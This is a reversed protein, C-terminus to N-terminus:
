LIMKLKMESRKGLLTPPSGNNCFNGTAAVAGFKIPDFKRRLANVACPLSAVDSDAVVVDDCFESDLM